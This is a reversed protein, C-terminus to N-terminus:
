DQLSDTQSRSEWREYRKRDRLWGRVIEFIVAGILTVVGAIIINLRDQVVRLTGLSENIQDGTRDSFIDIETKRDSFKQDIYSRLGIEVEHIRNMIKTMQLQLLDSDDSATDVDSEVSQELVGDSPEQQSLVGDSSEQQSLVGDTVFFILYIGLIWWLVNQGNRM